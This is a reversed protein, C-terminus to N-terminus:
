NMFPIPPKVSITQNPLSAYLLQCKGINSSAVHLLVQLQTRTAQCVCDACWYATCIMGGSKHEVADGHEDVCMAAFGHSKADSWFYSSEMVGHLSARPIIVNCM